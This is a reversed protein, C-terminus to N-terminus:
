WRWVPRCPASEACRAYTSVAADRSKMTWKAATKVADLWDKILKTIVFLTVIISSPGFVAKLLYKIADDPSPPM